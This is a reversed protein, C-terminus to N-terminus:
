SLQASAVNGPNRAARIIGPSGSENPDDRAALTVSAPRLRLGCEFRTAFWCHQNSREEPRVRGILEQGLHDLGRPGNCIDGGTAVPTFDHSPTEKVHDPEM